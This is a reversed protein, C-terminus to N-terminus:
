PDPAASYFPTCGPPPRPHGDTRHSPESIPLEFSLTTRYHHVLVIIESSMELGHRARGLQRVGATKGITSEWRALFHRQSSRIAWTPRRPTKRCPCRAPRGRASMHTPVVDRWAPCLMEGRRSEFGSTEADSGICAGSLRGWQPRSTGRVRAEGRMNGRRAPAEAGCNVDADLGM